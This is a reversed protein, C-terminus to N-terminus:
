LEVESLRELVKEMKAKLQSWEDPGWGWSRMSEDIFKLEAQLRRVELLALGREHMRQAEEATIGYHVMLESATAGREVQVVLLADGAVSM